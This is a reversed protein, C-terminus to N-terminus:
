GISELVQWREYVQTRLPSLTQQRTEKSRLSLWEFWGPQDNMASREFCEREARLDTLNDSM